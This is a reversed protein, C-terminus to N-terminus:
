EASEGPSTAPAPTGLLFALLLALAAASSVLYSLLFTMTSPAFWTSWGPALGTLASVTARYAEVALLGLWAALALRWFLEPAEAGRLASLSSWALLAASLLAIPGFSDVVAGFWAVQDPGTGFQDYASLSEISIRLNEGVLAAVILTVALVPLRPFSTRGPPRIRELGILILFPGAYQICSMVTSFLDILSMYAIWTEPSADQVVGRVVLALASSTTWAVAGVLVLRASRWADPRWILIAAPLAALM